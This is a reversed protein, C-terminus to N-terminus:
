NYAPLMVVFLPLKLFLMCFHPFINGPRFSVRAGTTEVNRPRAGGDGGGNRRRQAKDRAEAAAADAMECRRGWWNWEKNHVSYLLGIM